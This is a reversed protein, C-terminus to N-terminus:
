QHKLAAAAKSHAETMAKIAAENAPDVPLIGFMKESGAVYATLFQALQKMAVPSMSVTFLWEVVPEPQPHGTAQDILVRQSGFTILTETANGTISFRNAAHTPPSVATASVLSGPTGSQHQDAM